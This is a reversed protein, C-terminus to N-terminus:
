KTEPKNNERRKLMLFAIVSGTLTLVITFIFGSNVHYMMLKCGVLSSFIRGISDTSQLVGMITGKNNGAHQAVFTNVATILLGSGIALLSVSFMMATQNHSLLILIIGGINIASSVALISSYKMIRHFKRFGFGQTIATVLGFWAFANGIYISDTSITSQAYVPFM